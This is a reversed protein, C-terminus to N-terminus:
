PCAWFPWSREGYRCEARLGPKSVNKNFGHDHAASKSEIHRTGNGMYRRQGFGAGGRIWDVDLISASLDCEAFCFGNRARREGIGSRTANAEKSFKENLGRKRDKFARTLASSSIFFALLLVSWQWGGLGFIITGVLIAAIAGDRSLSHVTYAIWAVIVALFFGAALQIMHRHQRHIIRRHPVIFEIARELGLSRVFDDADKGLPFLLSRDAM